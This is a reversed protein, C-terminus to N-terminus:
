KIYARTLAIRRVPTEGDLQVKEFKDLVDLGEVVKGFIAYGGDLNPAPGLCIFFSTTASDPAESRAMSVIGREHKVATTFEPKLSHVWRDAPNSTVGGARSDEMGGQIVFGPIVRHFATGDYWGTKVLTLFNRVTEPALEPQLQITIDGLDTALVVQQRMEDLTANLFPALPKPEIKISVIRVPEEALQGSDVPTESIREVVDMGETVQGFASFKGDLQPQDSNCIFFQSGGSNAEGPIAVTSVTGRIHKLDSPEDPLQKLGGSGWRDRPTSPNKLLPDGGQILARSYMRFFAS